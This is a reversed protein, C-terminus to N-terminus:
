NTIKSIKEHQSLYFIYPLFLIKLSKMKCIYKILLKKKQLPKEQERERKEYLIFIKRFIEVKQSM